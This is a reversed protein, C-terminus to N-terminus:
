TPTAPAEQDPPSLIHTLARPNQLGKGPSSQEPSACSDTQVSELSLPLGERISM